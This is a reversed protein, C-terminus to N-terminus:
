SQAVGCSARGSSRTARVADPRNRRWRSTAMMIANKKLIGILLVIGVAIIDPGAAANLTLLAGIGARVFDLAADLQPRPRGLQDQRLDVTKRRCGTALRPSRKAGSPEKGCGEM